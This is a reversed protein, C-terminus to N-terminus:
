LKFSEKIFDIIQAKRNELKKDLVAYFALKLADGIEKGKLGLSIMDQGNVELDTIKMCGKEAIIREGDAKLKELAKLKEDRLYDSQALTDALRIDLYDQWFDEGYKAIFRRITNERANELRNDHEYILDCVKDLTKKDCKLRKLISRATKASETQHMKFHMVGQDDTTAMKPKEIDHLLMTLRLTTDPKINGVSKCIHGYVDFCHHPCKQPFDFTAKLEPIIVAFIDRFGMLINEANKGTLMKKLETLIRERSIEKLLNKQRLMAEATNKEIKFGLVSAFRLGRMIRLADEDFRKEPDGVCRIVGRQMDGTGDFMDILGTNDSYCLANVTFDRRKLDEELNTEFCVNEPRRHDKYEGDSRYTTIEVPLHHSIVTLTGHKLGTTVTNHDSFIEIMEDPLANTCVDFDYPKAGLISDRVCGGVIYAEFGNEELRQIVEKVYGPIEIKM